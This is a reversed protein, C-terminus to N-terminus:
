RPPANRAPLVRMWHEAGIAAGILTGAPVLIGGLGYAALVGYSNKDTTAYLLTPLISGILAGRMAGKRRSKGRLMDLETVHSQLLVLTPARYFGIHTKSSADRLWVSDHTARVFTANLRNPTIAPVVLRVRQGPQVESLQAHTLTPLLLASAFFSALTRRVIDGHERMEAGTSHRPAVGPFGTNGRYHHRASSLDSIRRGRYRSFVRQRGRCRGRDDRCQRRFRGALWKQRRPRPEPRRQCRAGRDGVYRTFTAFGRLYIRCDPGAPRTVLSLGNYRFRSRCHNGGADRGTYGCSCAIWPCHRRNACRCHHPLLDRFPPM